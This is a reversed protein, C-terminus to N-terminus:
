LIENLWKAYSFSSEDEVAVNQMYHTTSCQKNYADCIPNMNDFSNMYQNDLRTSTLAYQHDGPSSNLYQNDLKTNTQAYQHDGPLDGLASSLYQRCTTSRYNMAPLHNMSDENTMVYPKNSEMMARNTRMENNTEQLVRDILNNVPALMCSFSEQSEGNQASYKAFNDYTERLVEDSLDVDSLAGLSSIDFDDIRNADVDDVKEQKAVKRRVLKPNNIAYGEEETTVRFVRSKPETQFNFGM